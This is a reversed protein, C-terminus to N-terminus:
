AQFKLCAFYTNCIKLTHRYGYTDLMFHAHAMNDHSRDLEAMNKWMIEYVARNQPPFFFNNFM